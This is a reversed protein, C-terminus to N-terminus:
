KGCRVAGDAIASEATFQLQVLTPATSVNPLSVTCVYDNSFLVDVAVSETIEEMKAPDPPTQMDNFNVAFTLIKAPAVAVTQAATFLEKSGASLTQNVTASDANPAATTVYDAVEQGILATTKVMAEVEERPIDPTPAASAADSSTVQESAPASVENTEGGGSCAALALVAVPGSLLLPLLQRRM